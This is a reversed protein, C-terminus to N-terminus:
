RKDTTRRGASARRNVERKDSRLGRGIDDSRRPGTRRDEHHRYTCPCKEPHPCTSLPLKPAERSLYRTNRCLAAAACSAERLVVTVAHWKTPPKKM